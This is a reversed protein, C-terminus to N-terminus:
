IGVSKLKYCYQFADRGITTVSDPIVVSTLLFHRFFAREGIATVPLGKHTAPIEIENVLCAGIGTVSYSKGDENLTFELRKEDMGLVNMAACSAFGLSLCALFMTSLIGLLWKKFKMLLNGKLAIGLEICFAYHM